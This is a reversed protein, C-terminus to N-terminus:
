QNHETISTNNKQNQLVNEYCSDILARVASYNVKRELMWLVKDFVGRFQYKYELEAAQKILKADYPCLNPFM